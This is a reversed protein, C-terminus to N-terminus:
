GVWYRATAMCILAIILIADQAVRTVYLRRQAADLELIQGQTPTGRIVTVLNVIKRTLVNVRMGLAFGILAFVAGIGFGIGPGSRMWSSTLGGSDIWYLAAGALVTLGAAAAFRQVLHANRVLHAFVRQGPEGNAAAAPMIFLTTVLSGGVWFVGAVIHLLRLILLIYNMGSLRELAASILVATAILYVVGEDQNVLINPELDFCWSLLVTVLLGITRSIAFAARIRSLRPDQTLAENRLTSKEAASIESRSAAGPANAWQVLLAYGTKALHVISRQYLVESPFRRRRRFRAPTASMVHSASSGRVFGNASIM